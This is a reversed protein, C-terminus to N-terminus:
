LITTKLNQNIFNKGVYTSDAYTTLVKLDAYRKLKDPTQLLQDKLVIMVSFMGPNAHKLMKMIAAAILTKGTGTDYLFMSREAYLFKVIDVCQRDHLTIENLVDNIAHYSDKECLYKEIENM